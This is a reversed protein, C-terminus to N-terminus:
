NRLAALEMIKDLLGQNKNKEAWDVLDDVIENAPREGLYVSVVGCAEQDKFIQEAKFHAQGANLSKASDYLAKITKDTSLSLLTKVVQLQEDNLIVSWVKPGDNLAITVDGENKYLVISKEAEHSLTFEVSADFCILKDGTFQDVYGESLGLSLICFNEKEIDCYKNITESSVGVANLKKHNEPSNEVLLYANDGGDQDIIELSNLVDVVAQKNTKTM